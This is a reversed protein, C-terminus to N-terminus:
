ESEARWHALSARAQEEFARLMEQEAATLLRDMELIVVSERKWLFSAGACGNLTTGEPVPRLDHEAVQALDDVYGVLLGLPHAEHGTLLIPSYLGDEGRPLGLLTELCVVTVMRGARYFVGEVPAPRRPPKILEPRAVIERVTTAPVALHRDSLRLVLYPANDQGDTPPPSTM